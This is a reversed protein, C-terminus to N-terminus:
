LGPMSLRSLLTSAYVSVGILGIVAMLKRFLM